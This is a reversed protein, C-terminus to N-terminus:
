GGQRTLDALERWPRVDWYGSAAGSTSALVFCPVGGILEQQQGYSVPRELAARAANKGNFAICAPSYREMESILRPVDFGARGVEQDSGSKTKCIDTLGLKYDLLRRYEHPQLVHPTLGIEHLTPWFKNGRGAYYAGVAASRKGLATGCFVVRLGPALVDGILMSSTDSQVLLRKTRRMSLPFDAQSQM